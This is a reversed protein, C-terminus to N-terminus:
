SCGTKRQFFTVVNEGRKRRNLELYDELLQSIEPKQNIGYTLAIGLLLGDLVALSELSTSNKITTHLFQVGAYISQTPNTKIGVFTIHVAPQAQAPVLELLFKELLELKM